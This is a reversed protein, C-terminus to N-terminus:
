SADKFWSTIFLTIFLNTHTAQTSLNVPCCLQESLRNGTKYVAGVSLPDTLFFVAPEWYKKKASVGATFAPLKKKIMTAEVAHAVKGM